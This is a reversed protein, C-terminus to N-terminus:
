QASAHLSLFHQQRFEIAKTPHRVNPHQHLISNKISSLLFLHQLLQEVLSLLSLRIVLSAEANRDFEDSKEQFDYIHPEIASHNSNVSSGSSKRRQYESQPIDDITLAIKPAKPYVKCPAPSDSLALPSAHAMASSSAHALLGKSFSPMPADQDPYLLDPLTKSRSLPPTRKWKVDNNNNEINQLLLSRVFSLCLDARRM